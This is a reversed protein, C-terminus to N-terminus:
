KLFATCAHICFCTQGNVQEIQRPAQGQDGSRRLADATGQSDTERAGPRAHYEVPAIRGTNGFRHVFERRLAKVDTARGKVNGLALRHLGADSADLRVKAGDVNQDIVGADLPTRRELLKGLGGPM